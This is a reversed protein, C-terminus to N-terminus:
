ALLDDIVEFFTAPTVTNESLLMFLHHAESKSPSIDPAKCFECDDGNTIVVSISYGNRSGSLERFVEERLEYLLSSSENLKKLKTEVINSKSTETKNKM